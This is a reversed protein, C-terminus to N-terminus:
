GYLLSINIDGKMDALSAPSDIWAVNSSVELRASSPGGRSSIPFDEAPPSNSMTFSAFFRLSFLEIQSM